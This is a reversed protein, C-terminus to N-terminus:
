FNYLARCPAQPPQSLINTKINSIFSHQTFTTKSLKNEQKHICITDKQAVFKMAQPVNSCLSFSHALGGGM